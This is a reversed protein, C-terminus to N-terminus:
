FQFWLNQMVNFFQGVRSQVMEGDLYKFILPFQLVCVCVCVVVSPCQLYTCHLNSCVFAMVTLAFLDEKPGTEGVLRLYSPVTTGYYVLVIPCRLSEHTLTLCTPVCLV